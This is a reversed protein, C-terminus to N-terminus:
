IMEGVSYSRICLVSHCSGLLIQIRPMNDLTTVTHLHMAIEPVRNHQRTTMLETLFAQSIVMRVHVDYCAEYALSYREPKGFTLKVGNSISM